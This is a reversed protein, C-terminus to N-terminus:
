SLFALILCCFFILLDMYLNWMQYEEYINNVIYFTFLHSYHATPCSCPCVAFLVGLSALKPSLRVFYVNIPNMAICESYLATHRDTVHDSTPYVTRKKVVFHFQVCLVNRSSHWVHHSILVTLKNIDYSQQTNFNKAGLESKCKKEKRNTRRRKRVIREKGKM